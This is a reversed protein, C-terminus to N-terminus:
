EYIIGTGIPGVTNKTINTGGESSVYLFIRGGSSVEIDFANDVGRIRLDCERLIIRGVREILIGWSAYHDRAVWNDCQTTAGPGYYVPGQCNTTSNVSSIGCNGFFLAYIGGDGLNPGTTIDFDSVGCDSFAFPLCGATQNRTVDLEITGKGGPLNWGWFDFGAFIDPHYHATESFRGIVRVSHEFVVTKNSDIFIFVDNNQGFMWDDIDYTVVDDISKVLVDATGNTLSVGYDVVHGAELTMSIYGDGITTYGGTKNLATHLDPFDGTAGVTVEVIKDIFRVVNYKKWNTKTLDLVPDNGTNTDTLSIFQQSVEQGSQLTQYISVIDGSSYTIDVDWADGSVLKRLDIEIHDTAVSLDALTTSGEYGNIFKTGM